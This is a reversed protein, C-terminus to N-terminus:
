VGRRHRLWFLGKATFAPHVLRDRSGVKEEDGGPWSELLGPADQGIAACVKERTGGSIYVGLVGFHFGWYTVFLATTGLMANITAVDGTWFEHVLV